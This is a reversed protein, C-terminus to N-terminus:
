WPHTEGDWRLFAGSQAPTILDITKWIAKAGDITEMAAHAGGMDTKLWGPHMAVVAIKEPELLHATKVTLSNLAAKSANYGVDSGTTKGVVMSGLQSSINIIKANDSHRLLPLLARTLLMPGVVNVRMQGLVQEASIDFPGREDERAGFAQADVGANNILIDVHDIRKAVAEAFAKISQEDAVDLQLQSPKTPNRVAEMVDDGADTALASLEKGLGRSAGTIVINRRM